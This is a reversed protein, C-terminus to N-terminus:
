SVFWKDGNLDGCGGSGSFCDVGDNVLFFVRVFSVDWFLLLLLMSICGCCWCNFCSISGM